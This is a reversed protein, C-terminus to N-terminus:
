VIKFQTLEGEDVVASDIINSDKASSYARLVKWTVGADISYMLQIKGTWTGHTVFKWQSNTTIVDSSGPVAVGPFVITGSTSPGELSHSIRYLAGVHGAAFTAASATLTISGSTGSPTITTATVNEKQFPGNKISLATFTWANHATRTLLMVPHSPHFLFLTDASQAYKIDFVEADTYISVVEYPTGSGPTTEIFGGNMFFRFYLHGAEVVYAQTVSFQFPILRTAKASTKVENIFRLGARNSAGGSPHVFTNLLTRASIAYKALDTRGYMSPSVEGGAFSNQMVYQSM